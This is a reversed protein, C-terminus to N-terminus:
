HLLNAQGILRAKHKNGVSCSLGIHLRCKRCKTIEVAHTADAHQQADNSRFRSRDFALSSIVLSLAHVPMMSRYRSCRGTVSLVGTMVNNSPLVGSRGAGRRESRTPALTKKFISPALGVPDNLSRPIVIAM